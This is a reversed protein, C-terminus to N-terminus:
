VLGFKMQSGVLPDAVFMDGHNQRRRLAQTDLFEADDAVLLKDILARRSNMESTAVWIFQARWFHYYFFHNEYRKRNVDINREIFSRPRRKKEM